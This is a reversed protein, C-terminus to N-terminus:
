RMFWFLADLLELLCGREGSTKVANKQSEVDPGKKFYRNRTLDEHCYSCIHAQPDVNRECNGCYANM